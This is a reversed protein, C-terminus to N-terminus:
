LSLCAHSCRPAFPSYCVREVMPGTAHLCSVRQLRWILQDEVAVLLRELKELSLEKGEEEAAAKGAGEGMEEMEMGALALMVQELLPQPM